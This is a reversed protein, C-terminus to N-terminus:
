NAPLSINGFIEVRKEYSSPGITYYRHRYVYHYLLSHWSMMTLDNVRGRGGGHWIGEKLRKLIWVYGFSHVPVPM